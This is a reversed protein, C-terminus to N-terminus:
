SNELESVFTNKFSEINLRTDYDEKLTKLISQITQVNAIKCIMKSLNLPNFYASDFLPDQNDEMKKYHCDIVWGNVDHRIIENHPQTNLTIVPTGTSVAEYFGLGLGEHKSVQISVHHHYYLNIIEVYQMHDQLFTIGPHSKFKEMKQQDDLELSNIKQITCTLRIKNNIEYAHVFGELVNLLQKRSFSNMGGISLFNITDGFTKDKFEINDIGYGIYSLPIKIYKKLIDLCLHNNALIKHFYNHKYLEDKRVIEINPIGYAKVSHEKLLKAIEFIRFWCTEPILMKGINYKKCFEIIEIDKIDERSNPSFYIDKVNWESPNKQLEQCSQANYPKIAFICVKYIKSTTLVNYYNRSQIGLGQDCWPTLIGINMEKSKLLTKHIVKEFQGKAVEESTEKYLKKIKQSYNTCVDDNWYLSELTDKWLECNNPDLNCFNSKDDGGFLYKINGKGSTLIPIGNMMGENVARCFTEDVVSPCLLIKTQEYISKIDSHRDMYLSNGNALVCKKIIEDHEESGHETKICIFPINPCSKLLYAIIKGGKNVHINIITVYKSKIPNIENSINYRKISSSPYIIDDIQVDCINKIIDQVFSSCVYFNCNSKDKLHTFEQDIKHHSKNKLIDINTKEGDLQIIGNWFHVGTLFQINLKETAKFFKERNQGQHHVVHPKLIYLWNELVEISFNPIEIITGYDCERINLEKFLTNKSDAFSLWYCKMGLNYAWEMSDYMFEEGGGFPYTWYTTIVYIKDQYSYTSM